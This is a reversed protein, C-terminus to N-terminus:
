RLNLVVTITSIIALLATASMALHSAILLSLM